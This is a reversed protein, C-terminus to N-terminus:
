LLERLGRARSDSVRLHFGMQLSHSRLCLVSGRQAKTEKQRFHALIIGHDHSSGHLSIKTCYRICQFCEIFTLYLSYACM